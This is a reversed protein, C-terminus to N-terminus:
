WSWGRYERIIDSVTMSLNSAITGTIVNERHEYWHAALQCVAMILAPPIKEGKSADFRKEIEFGLLREIHDQAGSLLRKLEEDDFDVYVHEKLADLTAIM